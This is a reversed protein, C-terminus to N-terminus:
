EIKYGAFDGDCIIPQHLHHSRIPTKLPANNIYSEMKKIYSSWEGLSENMKYLMMSNMPTNRREAFLPEAVKKVMQAYNSSDAKVINLLLEPVVPLKYQYSYHLKQVEPSLFYNLFEMAGSYKEPNGSFISACGMYLVADSPIIVRVNPNYKSQNKYKWFIDHAWFMGFGIKSKSVEDIHNINGIFFTSRNTIQEFYNTAMNFDFARKGDKNTQGLMFFIYYPLSGAHEGLKPMIYSMNSDSMHSALNSFGISNEQINMFNCNYMICPLGTYIGVWRGDPAKAWEPLRANHLKSFDIKKSKLRHHLEPGGGLLMDYDNFFLDKENHFRIFYPESNSTNNKTIEIHYKDSRSNFRDAVVDWFDLPDHKGSNPSHTTLSTVIRITTKQPTEKNFIYYLILLILIIPFLMALRINKNNKKYTIAAESHAYLAIDNHYPNNIGSKFTEFDFVQTDTAYKTLINLTEIRPSHRTEIFNRITDINLISVPQSGLASEETFYRDIHEKIQKYYFKSYQITSNDFTKSWVQKRLKEICIDNHKKVEYKELMNDASSDTGLVYQCIYQITTNSSAISDSTYFFKIDEKSINIKLANHMKFSVEADDQTGLNVSATGLAKISLDKRLDRLLNINVFQVGESM